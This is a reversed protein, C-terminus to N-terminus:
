PPSSRQSLTKAVLPRFLIALLEGMEEPTRNMKSEMWEDLISFFVYSINSMFDTLIEEDQIPFLNYVIQHYTILHHAKLKEILLYDMKKAKILAFLDAKSQWLKFFHTAAIEFQLVSGDELHIKRFNTFMEEFVEDMYFLLVEEQTQFHKYFTPRSLNARECIEYVKVKKSPNKKLLELYASVLAQKTRVTLRNGHKNPM